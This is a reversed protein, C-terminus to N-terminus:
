ATGTFFKCGKSAWFYVGFYVELFGYVSWFYSFPRNEHKKADKPRYKPEKPRYKPKQFHMKNIQKKSPEKYIRYVSWVIRLIATTQKCSKSSLEQQCQLTCADPTVITLQNYSRTEVERDNGRHMQYSRTTVAMSLEKAVLPNAGPHPFARVPGRHGRSIPVGVGGFHFFGPFCAVKHHCCFGESVCPKSLSPWHIKGKKAVGELPPAPLQPRTSPGQFLCICANAYVYSYTHM